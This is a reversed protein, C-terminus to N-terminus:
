RHEALAEQRIQAITTRTTIAEQDIRLELLAPRTQQLARELALAFEETFEVAEAYAGYSKALAVFDPNHLATGFVRGPYHREQHMRITGYMGNNIVIFVIALGHAVATALEQGNMLFCGDGSVSIVVREPQALKAAVAAPVAYGMAGAATSLQTRFGSFQYFRHFWATFNGAGVCLLADRPLQKQLTAVAESLNLTGPMAVPQVNAVYDQRASQVWEARHATEFGQM